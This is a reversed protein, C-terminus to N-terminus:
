AAGSRRRSARPPRARRRYRLTFRAFHKVGPRAVGQCRHGGGRGNKKERSRAGANRKEPKTRRRPGRERTIHRQAASAVVCQCAYTNKKPVKGRRSQFCQICSTKACCCWGVVARKRREGQMFIGGCASSSHQARSVLLVAQGRWVRQTYRQPWKRSSRAPALRAAQQLLFRAAPAEASPMARTVGARKEQSSEFSQERYGARMVDKM